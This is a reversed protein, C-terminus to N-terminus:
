IKICKISKENQLIQSILCNLYTQWSFKFKPFVWNDPVSAFCRLKNANVVSLQKTAPQAWVRRSARTITNSTRPIGQSKAASTVNTETNQRKLFCRSGTPKVCFPASGLLWYSTGTSGSNLQGAPPPPTRDVTYRGQRWPCRATRAQRTGSLLNTEVEM